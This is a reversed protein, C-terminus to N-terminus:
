QLIWKVSDHKKIFGITDEDKSIAFAYQSGVMKNDFFEGFLWDDYLFCPTFVINNERIEVELFFSTIGAIGANKKMKKLAAKCKFLLLRKKSETKIVTRINM